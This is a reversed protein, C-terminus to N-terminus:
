KEVNFMVFVNRWSQEVSFTSSIRSIETDTHVGSFVNSFFKLKAKLAVPEDFM